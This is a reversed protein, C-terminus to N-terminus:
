QPPRYSSSKAKRLMRRMDRASLLPTTRGSRLAGGAEAAVAFAAATVNDPLELVLVIDYEGFCFWGGHLEGDFKKIVKAIVGIRDQPKKILKALAEPTYAGQFMYLAM